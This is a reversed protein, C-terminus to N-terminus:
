PSWPARGPTKRGAGYSSVRELRSTPHRFPEVCRETIGRRQQRLDLTTFVWVNQETIKVQKQLSSLDQAKGGNQGSSPTQVLRKQKQTEALKAM